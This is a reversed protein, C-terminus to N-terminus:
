EIPIQIPTRNQYLTVYRFGCSLALEMGEEIGAGVDHASHADSGITLYEGGLERFRRVLAASPSFYPNETRLGSTNIELARGNQALARLIEDTQERFASLDKDPGGPMYRLPYTLHALSDFNGWRVTDLAEAFYRDLLADPDNEPLTYDLYYFDQMDTLNHVSTLVFDYRSRLVTKAAERNQLPQGLEVGALVVLKGMFVAKAKNVEFFAQRSSIHYRDSYYANCECHDTIALARLGVRDAYECLLMTNHCGDPSNDSHTHLDLRNKYM